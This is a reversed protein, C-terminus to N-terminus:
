VVFRASPPANNRGFALTKRLSPGGGGGSSYVSAPAGVATGGSPAGYRPMYVSRQMPRLPSVSPRSAATHPREAVATSANSAFSHRALSASSSHLAKSTSANPGRASAARRAPPPPSPAPTPHLHVNSGLSSSRIASSHTPNAYTGGPASPHGGGGGVSYHASGSSTNLNPATQPRQSASAQPPAMAYISTLLATVAEVPINAGANPAQGSSPASRRTSRKSKSHRRGDSSSSTSRSSDSSSSHGRRHRHRRRQSSRGAEAEQQQHRRPLLVACTCPGKQLSAGGFAGGVTMEDRRQPSAGVSHVNDTDHHPRRSMRKALVASISQPALPTVRLGVAERWADPGSGGGAASERSGSSDAAVVSRRAPAGQPSYSAAFPRGHSALADGGSKAARSPTTHLPAAAAGQQQTEPAAPRPRPSLSPASTVNLGSLPADVKGVAAPLSPSAVAPPAAASATQASPPVFITSKMHAAAPFQSWGVAASVAGLSDDGDGGGYRHAFLPNM